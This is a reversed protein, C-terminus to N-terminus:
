ENTVDLNGSYYKLDIDKAAKALYSIQGTHYSAHETVHVLVSIGNEEFGQIVYSATLNEPTLQDLVYCADRELHDLLHLLDATPIPGKESFELARVRGDAAGSLGSVIWQRANGCVHLVLNGVSNSSANPRAWIEAESMLQLCKRIRPWSEDFLRRRIESLFLQHFRESEMETFTNPSCDPICRVM